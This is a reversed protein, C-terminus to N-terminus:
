ELDDQPLNGELQKLDNINILPDGEFDAGEDVILQALFSSCPHLEFKDCQEKFCDKIHNPLGLEIQIDDDGDSNDDVSDDVNDDNSNNSDENDKVNDEDEDNSSSDDDVIDGDEDKSREDNKDVDDDGETESLSLESSLEPNDSSM